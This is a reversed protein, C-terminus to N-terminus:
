WIQPLARMPYTHPDCRHGLRAADLPVSGSRRAGNPADSPAETGKASGTPNIVGRDQDHIPWRGSGCTDRIDARGRKRHVPERGKKVEPLIGEM